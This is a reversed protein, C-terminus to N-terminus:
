WRYWKRNFSKLFVPGSEALFLTADDKIEILFARKEQRGGVAVAIVGQEAVIGVSLHEGM